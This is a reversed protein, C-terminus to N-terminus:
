FSIVFRPTIVPCDRDARLGGPHHLFQFDQVLAIHRNITAKYYGELALEGPLDFGAGPHTSFHVWTAAIGIADHGRKPFPAQLVAGAGVHLTFPSVQGEAQGFQFFTALQREGGRKGLWSPRLGSQELVTYFGQAGSAKGGDFRAVPGSLRWYGVSVRGPRESQGLNWNRSPEVIALAGTAATQFLGVGLGDNTTPHVFINMGLKPEPYTPFAMITPSYGMSSNLFDASTLVAAFESNADIKGGKLRLRNSLLRQELWIEYLATRSSADINSYLQAAGACTEGFERMHNKLRVLGASGDLGFAKKGDVPMSLDFSHRGFGSAPEEDHDFEKSWDYVVLGQFSIGHENLGHFIERPESALAIQYKSSAAAASSETEQAFALNSFVLCVAQSLVVVRLTGLNV